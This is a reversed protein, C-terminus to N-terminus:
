KKLYIECTDANHVVQNNWILDLAEDFAENVDMIEAM